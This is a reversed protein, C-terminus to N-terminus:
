RAIGLSHRSGICTMKYWSTEKVTGDEISSLDLVTVKQNRWHESSTKGAGSLWDHYILARLCWALFEWFSRTNGIFSSASM